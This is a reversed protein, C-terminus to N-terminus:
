QLLDSLWHAVNLLFQYNEVAYPENMGVPWEQPGHLQATFMAAEGFVAVRGKGFHLSAGQYWGEAPIRPTQSTFQWPATPTISVMEPGLVLLPQAKRREDVQFASGTMTAVSDISEAATRGNAIPSDPLFGYTATKRYVLPYEGPSIASRQFILTFDQAEERIAYGNSMHVGFAAALKKAAGPFPLHDAILWLSGGERVWRRVVRIENKSFASPTPLSWDDVNREALANSIVLIQVGSLSKKTFKSRGPKVVYGDRRLLEAFPQYRGKMTHYNFHAQDIMVVPGGNRPYAPDEIPPNYATDPVQQADVRGTALAIMIAASLLLVFARKCSLAQGCTRSTRM